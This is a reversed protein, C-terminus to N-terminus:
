FHGNSNGGKWSLILFIQSGVYVITYRSALVLSSAVLLLSSPRVVGTTDMRDDPLLPPEM